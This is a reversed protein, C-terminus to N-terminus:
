GLLEIKKFYEELLKHQLMCRKFPNKTKKTINSAQKKYNKIVKEIKQKNKKDSNTYLKKILKNLDMTEDNISELSKKLDTYTRPNKQLIELYASNTLGYDPEKKIRKFDLKSHKKKINETDHHAVIIKMLYETLEDIKDNDLKKGSYYFTSMQNSFTSLQEQEKELFTKALDSYTLKEDLDYKEKFIKKSIDNLLDLKEKPTKDSKEIKVLEKIYLDRSSKQSKLEKKLTSKKVKLIELLILIIGVSIIMIQIPSSLVGLIVEKM